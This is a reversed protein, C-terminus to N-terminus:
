QHRAGIGHLWGLGDIGALQGDILGLSTCGTYFGILQNWKGGTSTNPHPNFRWLNQGRDLGWIVGENDLAISKLGNKSVARGSDNVRLDPLEQVDRPEEVAMSWAPDILSWQSQWPDADDPQYRLENGGYDFGRISGDMPNRYASTMVPWGRQGRHTGPLEALDIQQEDDLPKDRQASLSNPAPPMEASYAHVTKSQGRVESVRYVMRGEPGISFDDTGEPLRVVGPSWPRIDAFGSADWTDYGQFGGFYKGPTQEIQRVVGDGTLSFLKGDASPKIAIIKGMGSILEAQTVMLANRDTGSEADLMRIEGNVRDIWVPLRTLNRQTGISSSGRGSGFGSVDSVAALSQASVRGSGSARNDGHRPQVNLRSPESSPASQHFPSPAMDSEYGQVNFSPTVGILPVAERSSEPAALWGSSLRSNGSTRFSSVPSRGAVVRANEPSLLGGAMMPAAASATPRGADHTRARERDAAPTSDNQRGQREQGQDQRGHGPTEQEAGPANEQDAYSVSVAPPHEHTGSGRTQHGDRPGHSRRLLNRLGQLRSHRRDASEGQVQDSRSPREGSDRQQPLSVARRVRNMIGSFTRGAARGHSQGPEATNTSNRRATSAQTVQEQVPNVM